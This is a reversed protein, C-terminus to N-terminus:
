SSCDDLLTAESIWCKVEGFRLPGLHKGALTVFAFRLPSGPMESSYMRSRTLSSCLLLSCCIRRAASLLRERMKLLGHGDGEGEGVKMM